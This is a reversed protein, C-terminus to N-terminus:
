TTYHLVTKAPVTRKKLIPYEKALRGRITMLTYIKGLKMNKQDLYYLNNPLRDELFTAALKM